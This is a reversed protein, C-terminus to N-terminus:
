KITKMINENLRRVYSRCVPQFYRMWFSCAELNTAEFDVSCREYGNSAAWEMITSLLAAAIGRGRYEPMVYAGNVCLKNKGNVIWAAGDEVHAAKMYGVATDGDWVAWIRGGPESLMEKIMDATEPEMYPNFVPARSLHKYHADFLPLIEDAENESIVGIRLGKMLDAAGLSGVPRIADVCASGFGNWVFADQAERDTNLFVVAHTLCGDNVWEQGIARNMKRYIEFANEPVSAHAWEPVLVGKHVGLLGDIYLGTMFGIMKGNRYAAVGPTLMNQRLKEALIDRRSNEEDLIPVAKRQREYAAAFLECAEEIDNYKLERIEMSGNRGTM